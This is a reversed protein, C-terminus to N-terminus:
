AIWDRLVVSHHWITLRGLLNSRLGRRHGETMGVHITIFMFLNSLHPQVRTVQLNLSPVHM